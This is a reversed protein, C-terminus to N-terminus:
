KEEWRIGLERERLITKIRALIKKVTRIRHPNELQQTAAQHRLNLLEKQLERQKEHLETDTMERIEKPKM